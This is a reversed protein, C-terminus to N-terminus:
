SADEHANAFEKQKLWVSARNAFLVCCFKCNAEDMERSKFAPNGARVDTEPEKRLVHQVHKIELVLVKAM